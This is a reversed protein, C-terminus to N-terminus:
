QAGCAGQGSCILKHQDMESRMSAKQNEIDRLQAETRCDEKAFRSGTVKVSTCYVQNGNVRKARYGMPPKFPKEADAVKATADTSNAQAPAAAQDAAAEAAAESKSNPASPESAGAMTVAMAMATAWGTAFVIRM